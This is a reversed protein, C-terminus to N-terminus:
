ESFNFSNIDLKVFTIEEEFIEYMLAEPKWQHHYRYLHVSEEASLGFEYYNLIIQLVATIIRSGGQAGTVIIPKDDKFVITPTMSSLMRKGPQISNAENGVLGYLNPYGPKISFDDM